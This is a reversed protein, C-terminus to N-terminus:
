QICSAERRLQYMEWLSKKGAYEYYLAGLKRIRRTRNRKAQTLGVIKPNLGKEFEKKTM